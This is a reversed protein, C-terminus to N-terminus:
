RSVLSTVAEVLEAGDHVLYAPNAAELEGEPAYGWRVAIAPVGLRHAAEVDHVRDGVMAVVECDADLVRHEAIAREMVTVKTDSAPELTGHVGVFYSEFGMKRVLERASREGKSTAIRLPALEALVPISREADAFVTTAAPGHRDNHERYSKACAEILEDPGEPMLTRLMDRLPPGVFSGPAGAVEANVGNAQLAHRLSTTIARASDFIVGDMDFLVLRTRSNM